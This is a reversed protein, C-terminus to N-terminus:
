DEGAGEAGGGTEAPASQAAGAAIQEAVFARVDTHVDFGYVSALDKIKANMDSPKVGFRQEFAAAPIGTAASVEAFTMSGKIDDPNVTMVGSASPRALAPMTWAFAGTYTNVAIVGIIVAATWGLVANPSLKGADRASVTLAGAAPCVNVCENCNICEPTRVVEATAVEINVPCAKNCANCDICAEADRKVKFLSLPSLVALFAGMPCLYKCFFREYVVSGALSVVLVALGIGFEAFLEGTTLHMWAVWPDYPRIVLAAAQWTWLTFFVLVFYKLWRAPRDIAAPVTPRRRGKFLANGLRGFLEQLAGLPCVYGCFSRRFVFATLVISFLLVVSSAAIKKVYGAGSILAWLTEIGGFPCLADVGVPKNIGLTQHLYGITTIFALVALLVAFRITRSRRQAARDTREYGPGASDRSADGPEEATPSVPDVDSM